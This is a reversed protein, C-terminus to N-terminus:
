NPITAWGTPPSLPVDDDPKRHAVNHLSGSLWLFLERFNLGKLMVPQRNPPSIEKLTELNAGEVGVAFFNFGKAAEGEHVSTAASKWADTPAGDTILFIWPRYYAIGNAKYTDKRNRVMTIAQQIAEGMPTDGKAELTPPQFADATQFNRVIEVPGFTVIALEVRKVALEDTMLAEKLARIGDNVASIPQGAMSGSTDLLLVCACRQEPNLPFENPPEFPKQPFM